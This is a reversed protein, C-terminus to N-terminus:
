FGLCTVSKFCPAVMRAPRLSMTFAWHVLTAISPTIREGTELGVLWAPRDGGGSLGAHLRGATAQPELTEDGSSSVWPFAGPCAAAPQIFLTDDGQNNSECESQFLFLTVGRSCQLLTPPTLM